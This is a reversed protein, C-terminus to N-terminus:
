YGHFHEVTWVLAMAEKETIHYKQERDFLSRHGYAIIRPGNELNQCLVAGLGVPSADAVVFTPDDVSYFGLDSSSTLSSKLEEFALSFALFFNISAM